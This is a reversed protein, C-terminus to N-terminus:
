APAPSPPSPTMGPFELGRSALLELLPKVLDDVFNVIYVIVIITIMVPLLEILGSVTKSRFHQGGRQFPNLEKESEGNPGFPSENQGRM